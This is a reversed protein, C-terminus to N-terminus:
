QGMRQGAILDNVLALLEAPTAPKELHPRQCNALFTAVDKSLTDGTVFATRSALRPDLKQMEDFFAPGDMGPMKMDSLVADFSQGRLLELAEAATNRVVVGYGHEALVDSMM